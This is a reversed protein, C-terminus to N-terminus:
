TQNAGGQEGIDEPIRGEEMTKPRCEEEATGASKKSQLLLRPKAARCELRNKKTTAHYAKSLLSKDVVLLTKAFDERHKTDLATVKNPQRCEISGTRIEPLAAFPLVDQPIEAARKFMYSAASCTAANGMSKGVIRLQTLGQGHFQDRKEQCTAPQLSNTRHRIVSKLIRPEKPLNSLGERDQPRHQSNKRLVHPTQLHQPPALKMKVYEMRDLLGWLVQRLASSPQGPQHHLLQAKTEPPSFDAAQQPPSATRDSTHLLPCGSLGATDQYVAAKLKREHVEYNQQEKPRGGLSISGTKPVEPLSEGYNLKQQRTARDHKLEVSSEENLSHLPPNNCSKGKSRSFDVQRFLGTLSQRHSDLQHRLQQLESLHERMPRAGDAWGMPNQQGESTSQAADVSQTSVVAQPSAKASPAFKGYGDNMANRRQNLTTPSESISTTAISVVTHRQRASENFDLLEPLALSAGGSPCASALKQCVPQQLLRSPASFKHSSVAPAPIFMCDWAGRLSHRPFTTPPSALTQRSLHHNVPIILEHYCKHGDIGSGGLELRINATCHWMPPCSCSTMCRHVLTESLDRLKNQQGGHELEQPHGACHTEQIPREEQRPCEPECRKHQRLEPQVRGCTGSTCYPEGAECKRPPEVEQGRSSVRSLRLDAQNMINTPKCPSEQHRDDSIELLPGLLGERRQQNKAKEAQFAAADMAVTSAATLAMDSAAFIVSANEWHLPRALNPCTPVPQFDATAAVAPIVEKRQLEHPSQPLECIVQHEFDCSTSITALTSRVGTNSAVSTPGAGIENSHLARPNSDSECIRGKHRNLAGAFCSSKYCAAACCQQVKDLLGCSEYAFPCVYMDRDNARYDHSTAEPASERTESIKSPHPRRM